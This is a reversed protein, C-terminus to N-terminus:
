KPYDQLHHKYKYSLPLRVDDVILYKDRFNILKIKSKVVAFNRHIQILDLNSFLPFMQQLSKKFVYQKSITKLITYNGKVEFYIIETRDIQHRKSGDKIFLKTQSKILNKILRDITYFHFPKIIIYSNEYQQTQEYISAEESSTIFIVNQNKLLEALNHKDSSLINETGLFIDLIVIAPFEQNDLFAVLGEVNTLLQVDSYGNSTLKNMLDVAFIEDDDVIVIKFSELVVNQM